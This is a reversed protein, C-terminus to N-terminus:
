KVDKVPEPWLPRFPVDKRFIRDLDPPFFVYYRPDNAKITFVYVGLPLDRGCECAYETAGKCWRRPIAPKGCEPCPASIDAKAGEVGFIGLGGLIGALRCLFIRRLM